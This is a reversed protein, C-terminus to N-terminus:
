APLPSGPSWQCRHMKLAFANVCVFGCIHCRVGDPPAIPTPEPQEPTPQPAADKPTHAVVRLRTRKRQTPKTAPAPADTAPAIAASGLAITSAHEGIPQSGRWTRAQCKRSACRPPVGRAEPSLWVHGCVECGCFWVEVSKGAVTREIREVM